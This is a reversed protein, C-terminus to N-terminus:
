REFHFTGQIGNRGANSFSWTMQHEPVDVAYTSAEGLTASSGPIVSFPSDQLTTPRGHRDRFARITAVVKSGVRLTADAVTGPGSASSAGRAGSAARQVPRAMQTTYDIPVSYVAVPEDVLAALDALPGGLKGTFAAVLADRQEETSNQDVFLVERWHGSLVNGPIQLVQVLTLGSVDVGDVIGSAIHYANVAECRGGDPDRGVWCPCPAECSCAELLTGDLRYHSASAVM